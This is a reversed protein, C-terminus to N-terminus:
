FNNVNKNYAQQILTYATGSNEGLALPEGFIWPKTTEFATITIADNAMQIVM